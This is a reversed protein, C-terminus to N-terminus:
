AGRTIHASGSKADIEVKWRTPDVRELAMALSVRQASSLDPDDLLRDCTATLPAHEKMLSTLSWSAAQYIADRVARARDEPTKASTKFAAAAGVDGLHELASVIRRVARADGTAFYHSWLADLIVPDDVTRSLPDPPPRMLGPAARSAALYARGEATDSLWAATHLTDRAPGRLDALAAVWSEIRDPSAAMVRGLFTALAFRTGPNELGPEATIRRVEDVFRDPQPDAYYFKMWDSDTM